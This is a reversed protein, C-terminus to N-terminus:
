SGFPKPKWPFFVFASERSKRLLDHGDILLVDVKLNHKNGAAVLEKIIMTVNERYNDTVRLGVGPSPDGGKRAVLCYSAWEIEPYQRLVIAFSKLLEEAPPFLLQEFNINDGISPPAIKSPRQTDSPPASVNPEPTASVGPSSPM